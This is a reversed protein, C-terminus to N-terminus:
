QGGRQRTSRLFAESDSSLARRIAEDGAALFDEGAERARELGGGIGDDDPLGDPAPEPHHRERNGM